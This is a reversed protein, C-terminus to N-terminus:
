KELLINFMEALWKTATEYCIPGIQNTAFVGSSTTNWYTIEIRYDGKSNYPKIEIEKVNELTVIHKNAKFCKM